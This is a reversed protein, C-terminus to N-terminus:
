LHTFNQYVYSHYVTIRLHIQWPTRWNIESFFRSNEKFDLPHISLIEVITYKLGEHM